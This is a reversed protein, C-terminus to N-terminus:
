NKKKINGNKQSNKKVKGKLRGVLKTIKNNGKVSDLYAIGVFLM